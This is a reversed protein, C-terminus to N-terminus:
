RNSTERKIYSYSGIARQKIKGKVGAEERAERAAAEHGKLRKSLWGKAVVWRGSDPSAFLLIEIVGDIRRLPLAAVQKQPRLPLKRTPPPVLVRMISCIPRSSLSTVEYEAQHLYSGLGRRDNM